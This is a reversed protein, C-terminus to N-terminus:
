YHWEGMLLVCPPGGWGKNAIASTFVLSFDLSKGRWLATKWRRQQPDPLPSSCYRRLQLTAPGLWHLVWEKEREVALGESLDTKNSCYCLWHFPTTCQWAWITTQSSTGKMKSPGEDKWVVMLVQQKTEWHIRIVTNGARYTYSFLRQGHIHTHEVCKLISM